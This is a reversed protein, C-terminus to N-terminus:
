NKLFLIMCIFLVFLIPYRNAVGDSSDLFRHEDVLIDFGGDCNAVSTRTVLVVFM